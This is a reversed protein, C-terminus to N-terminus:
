IIRKRIGNIAYVTVCLLSKFLGLSEYKRIATWQSYFMKLKNGSRTSLAERYLAHVKQTNYAVYGHRLLFMLCIYDEKAVSLFKYDGFVSRKMILTLWPIGDSRIIKEYDYYSDTKVIRGRRLGTGSMKEYYSYVISHNNKQAFELQDSLKDPLWIDDSDLFAIWDGKANMISVNRPAAPSGSSVALEYLKIRKDKRAYQMIISKSNDTSGDDTILMEWNQYSQAIVSEICDRIFKASNHCPTIISVLTSNM